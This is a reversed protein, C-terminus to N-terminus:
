WAESTTSCRISVYPSCAHHVSSRADGSPSSVSAAKLSAEVDRQVLHLGAEVGPSFSYPPDRRASFVGVIGSFAM